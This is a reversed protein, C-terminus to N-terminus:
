RTRETSTNGFDYHVCLSIGICRDNEFPPLAHLDRVRLSLYDAHNPRMTEM